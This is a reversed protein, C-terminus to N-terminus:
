ICDPRRVIEILHQRSREEDANRVSLSVVVDANSEWYRSCSRRGPSANV